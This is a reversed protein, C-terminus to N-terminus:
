STTMASTQKEFRKLLWPVLKFWQLYGLTVPPLWWIAVSALLSDMMADCAKPGAISCLVHNLAAELPFSLVSSPFCYLMTPFNFLWVSQERVQPEDFNAVIHSHYYEFVLIAMLHIVCISIWIARASPLNQRIAGVFYVFFVYLGLVVSFSLVLYMLIILLLDM